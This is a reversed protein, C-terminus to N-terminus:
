DEHQLWPSEAEIKDQLSVQTQSYTWTPVPVMVRYNGCKSGKMGRRLKRMERTQKKFGLNLSM